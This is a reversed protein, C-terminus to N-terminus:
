QRQCDPVDTFIYTLDGGDAYYVPVQANERWTTNKVMEWQERSGKYIVNKPISRDFALEANLDRMSTPVIVTDLELDEAFPFWSSWTFAAAEVYAVGDPIEVSGSKGQYKLLVPGALIFDGATRQNELWRTYSFCNSDVERLTSPFTIQVLNSCRDFASSGLSTVGEPIVVETITQNGAFALYNVSTVGEPVAVKEADGQYKILIGNIIAFEGLNKM